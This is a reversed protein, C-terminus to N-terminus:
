EDMGLCLKLCKLFSADPAHTDKVLNWIEVHVNFISLAYDM